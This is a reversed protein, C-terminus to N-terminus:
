IHIDPSFYIKVFKTTRYKACMKLTRVFAVVLVLKLRDLASIQRAGHIYYAFRRLVKQRSYKELSSLNHNLIVNVVVLSSYKERYRHFFYYDSFDLPIHPNYGGTKKFVERHILLGSNISGINGVAIVGDPGTYPGRNHFFRTHFPAAVGLKGMAVRPCFLKQHPYRKISEAYAHLLTDMLDTDQDLLLLWQKQGYERDLVDAAMNYCASVGLNRKNAVYRITLSSITIKDHTFSPSNDFVIVDLKKHIAQGCRSLAQVSLAKDYPMRYCVIVFLVSDVFDDIRSKRM